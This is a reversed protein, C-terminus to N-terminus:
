YGCVCVCVNSIFLTILFLMKKTGNTLKIIKQFSLSLCKLNHTLILNKAQKQCLVMPWIGHNKKSFLFNHGMKFKHNSCIM